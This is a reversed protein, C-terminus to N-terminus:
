KGWRLVAAAYHYGAGPACMVVLDGDKIRGSVSAEHLNAGISAASMNGYKEITLHTKEPEINLAKRWAETLIKTPNHSILFDINKETYGAKALAKKAANPTTIPGSRKIEELGAHGRDIYFYLRERSQEVYSAAKYDRIYRSPLRLNCGLAGYCSGDTELHVSLIGKGKSVPQMIIAAAGDGMFMCNKETYDAINTWSTSVVCAVTDYLGSAIMGWAVSIQSILSTCATEVNIAAANKAGSKYQLAAANGPIPQDQFTPGDLILEIDDISIGANEVASLLAKAEMDSANEGKACVRREEVGAEDFIEDFSLLDLDEFWENTRVEEPVYLGTGVIGASRMQNIEKEFKIKHAPKAM